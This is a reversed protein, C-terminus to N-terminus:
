GSCGNFGTRNLFIVMAAAGAHLTRRGREPEIGTDETPAPPNFRRDRVDDYCDSGSERYGCALEQLARIVEDTIPVTWYRGILDPNLDCLRIDCRGLRGASLLDFFVAGSGFFPQHIAHVGGPLASGPCSAISTQRGGVEPAAQRLGTAQRERSENDINKIPTTSAARRFDTALAPAERLRAKLRRTRRPPARRRTEPTRGAKRLAERLVYEIQANLSRLDDNAWRQVGELVASDIRLLFPKREPM